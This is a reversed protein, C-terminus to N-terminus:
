RRTGARSADGRPDQVTTMVRGRGPLRLALPVGIASVAALATLPPGMAVGTTLSMLTAAAAVGLTPGVNMATQQLGGAVGASEASAHRVVVATATVMVTAFGAGLLLFGGGIELVAQSSPRSHRDV